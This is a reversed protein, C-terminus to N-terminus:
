QIVETAQLLVHQPITLGLAQATQLNIIFDFRTPQEVPLDAPRAGKLIRDVYYAARRHLDLVNAGYSMLGGERVPLSNHYMAPLRHSAALSVVRTRYRAVRGTSTMLADAQAAAAAEFAADLDTVDHTELLQVRLGLAAGAADLEQVLRAPTSPDWLFAVQRLNPVVQGLLELRKGSLQAVLNALGTVNGGPRALSAVLGSGVPDATAPFVIPITSTAGKAALIAPLGQAVIVAVGRRLLDAAAAGLPAEDRDTVRYDLLFNQGEEYGLAALGQRLAEIQEVLTPETSDGSDGAHPASSTLYGIIPLDAPPQRAQGPWRGCGALLGLGAASAAQVLRRRSVHLRRNNAAM